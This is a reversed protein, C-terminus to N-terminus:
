LPPEPRRWLWWLVCAMCTIAVGALWRPHTTWAVVVSCLAMALSASWKARRRVTRGNHWDHLMPGFLRNALLWGYLRPSSRAAAWAAMLVFVTTPLGPVIVGVVGLGLCLVAFALLLCRVALPLPRGIPAARSSRPAQADDAPTM